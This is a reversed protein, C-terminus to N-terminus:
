GSPPSMAAGCMPCRAADNPVHEGCRSCANWENPTEGAALWALVFGRGVFSGAIAGALCKIWQSGDDPDSLWSLLFLPGGIATAGGAAGFTQLIVSQLSSSRM